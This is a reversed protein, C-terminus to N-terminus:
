VTRRRRLTVLVAGALVLSATAAIGRAVDAGTNSLDGPSPLVGGGGDACSVPASPDVAAGSSSGTGGTASGSGDSWTNIVDVPACVDDGVPLAFSASTATGEGPDSVTSEGDVVIEVSDASGADTETVVCDAGQPLDLYVAEWGDAESVERAPGGPIDVDVTDGDVVQTCALSVTFVDGAHAAADDGTLTKFVRVEGVDFTNTVTVAAPDGEPVVVTTGGADGAAIVTSTAGGTAPETVTCEAGVPLGEYTVPSGPTIERSAGGPIDVDAGEFTCALSVEFPGGGYLEAGDGDVVKDVTIAGDDFTNTAVIAVTGERGLVHPPVVVDVSSGDTVVPDGRGTTVSMSTSSAGGTGTETLTCDAGVPLDDYTVPDGPVLTHTAGGPIGVREDDFTCALSVEFPGAGFEDAGDGDVVKDVTIRGVDFTNTATVEVPDDGASGITVRSPQISTSTAGGARPESVRCVAGVPLRSIQASLPGAGGLVVPSDYVVRPRNPGAGDDDFTCTVHLAFPGAGYLQVGDGAVVKTLDMEGVDFTNTIQATNRPGGALDGVLNVTARNGPTVVPPRSGEQVTVDIDTANGTATETVECDAGVPLGTLAIEGGGEITLDMPEAPGYGDAYVPNGLFTCRVQVEFPGFDDPDGNQDVAESVVEKSIVLSALDYRNVALITTPNEPDESDITVTPVILQTQGNLPTSEAVTCEAGYPIDPVTVPTGPTVTIAIPPLATELFTGVASTCTVQLHFEAPAYKAGDGIVRKSVQLPGSATAVGVKTGETPLLNVSGRDTVAVGSVAASNWAVARDGADPVTAPTMTTGEIAVTQAPRFPADDPFTVVVKLATMSEYVAQSEGGVLQVWGTAPDDTPCTPERLPDQLDDMCYDQVTSYYFAATADAPANVLAPPHARDPVPRWLSGREGSAFSGTDGPAPLRDYIVLKSMPLNGVNEVRVQWTEDHGPPIVPTCPYLYYGDADPTCTVDQNAADPDVLVDLQDGDTAKVAKSQALVAAPIPTVDAEAECEGTEPNLRVECTDWPRDGTVGATNNVTTNATLGTRFQVQVTITYTQGVELVTGEPFTFTLAFLNGSADVTVDAPDTPMAPGNAPAPAAGTLAYAYHEDVGDALRLEPGDADRPMPDDTVVPDYIPRNGTNTIAINMPFVADPAETGRSVTGDFDKVIRVGNEAHEYTIVGRADADGSVQVLDGTPDDPDIVLDAGTVTAMVDNTALGPADEGPAPANTALDSPVATAPDSRLTDRVRVDLHVAQTPDAPNEWIAGDARTFTFRLGTVDEASVNGPLAFTAGPTGNTWQGGTFTDSAPDYSGGTYADVQVQDIPATLTSADFGVLDYQNWFSGDVDTLTMEVARSPGTPRGAITLTSTPNPEADSGPEVISAPSFSKTEEMGIRADRLEMDATDWARPNDASTGGPDTVEAGASNAVPSYGAVEVRTTPQYRDFERLKLTLDLVGEAQSVIRGDFRVEVGVVDALAAPALAEAEVETYDTSVGAQTTLRVTTGGDPFADDGVPATGEPATVVINTLTFADFPQTGATTEPEVDAGASSPEAIRLTDVRAVSNNTATLLAHTSPYATDPTGEPPVSIPGGTWEKTIGVNIPTDIILVDDDDVDTRTAGQFTATASATDDVLGPNAAGENYITGNTAGLVPSGDSRKEDRLQFTLDLHRGDAQTSRAVGDGAAPVTPDSPFEARSPSETYTLRVSTAAASEDASLTYGPFSGVCPVAVSCPDGVADVWTGGIFLEVGTIADYRMLPDTAADVAEVRRLDFADYFSDAIVTGAPAAVDSLVMPDVGNFGNTSWTLQATIQDQTRARLSYPEDSQGPPALFTKDFFDLDGPDTPVPFPDVTDCGEAPATPDVTASSASSAGCNSIPADREEPGDYAAVVNPQFSTGPPFGADSHYSFQVGHADAPLDCNVTTPGAFTGCSPDTVWQTGDWYSVTLTSGAPVDTSRVATADFDSWFEGPDAPDTPDQIVVDNAGTTSGDPGFPLLQTPLQVIVTQGPLAPITSPSINKGTETALRDTLTVLDASATDDANPVTATVENPHTVDDAAQDPDTDATFPVSAEAGSVIPGTFTVAFGTVDCGPPPNPLTNPTATSVSPTTADACAFTVRATDANAPWQVGTGDGDPGFGTFTLPDAGEFPSDTGPSPETITMSTTPDGNNTAGITVTTPDGASVTAPDFSKSATVSNNPPTIVYTDDADTPTSEDGGHTVHSTADNAVTTPDTLATVADTQEVAVPVSATAGPQIDGSFTYRVGLVDESPTADTLPEWSDGDWYEETVTDANPPYTIEGTGTYGLLTFPNPAASPDVPDQIVLTDVPDNSTNTSGLTVTAATGPSAIGGTPEISKTTDSDLVLPVIPAIADSADQSAANDAVVTATNTISQGSQSFPLDPDVEATVLIQAQGGNPVSPNTYTVTNSDTDADIVGGAPGSQISASVLDVGDPLPDTLVTNTCPNANPDSCSVTVVWQVQDGPQYPGQSIEVKQIGWDAAAAPLAPVVVLPVAILAAAAGAAALDTLRPRRQTRPPRARQSDGDSSRM